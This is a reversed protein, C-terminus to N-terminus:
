LFLQLRSLNYKTYQFCLLIGISDIGVDRISGERTPVFTQHFEDTIGYLLALIMALILAHTQSLKNFTKHIARFLMFFLMAYEIMHLTKFFVFNYIYIESIGIRQRSSLFFIIGMWVIPPLWYFLFKKM